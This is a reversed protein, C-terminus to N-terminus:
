SLYDFLWKSIVEPYEMPVLHSAFAVNLFHNQTQSSKWKKWMDKSIVDTEEGRIAYIPTKIDLLKDFVHPVTSYIRAEWEKSFRLVQMGTKGDKRTGSNIYNWLADDSFRRFVEKQRYSKFANEKSYWESKRNLAKRAIPILNKRFSIPVIASVYDVYKPFLVPDILVLKSFLEPRKHAAIITAVAGLSHGMGVVQKLNYSEIASIIDEALEDWSKFDEYNSNEQFPKQLIALVRFKATLSDLLQKYAGPPYGNAHAFHIVEGEGGFDLLPINVM